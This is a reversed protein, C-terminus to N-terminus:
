TLGVWVNMGAGKAKVSLQADSSVYGGELLLHKTEATLNVNNPLPLNYRETYDYITCLDSNMALIEAVDGPPKKAFCMNARGTSINNGLRINDLEQTAAMYQDRTVSSKLTRPGSQIFASYTGVAGATLLIATKLATM